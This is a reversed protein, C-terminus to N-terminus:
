EVDFGPCEDPTMWEVRFDVFLYNSGGLHRTLMADDASGAPSTGPNATEYLLVVEEPNDIEDILKGSLAMNMAYSAREGSDDDPCVLMSEDSRYPLIEDVWQAADPFHGDHEDLYEEFAMGIIEMREACAKSRSEARSQELVPRMVAAQLALPGDVLYRLTDMDATYYATVMEKGQADDVRLGMALGLPEDGPYSLDISPAVVSVLSLLQRVSQASVYETVVADVPLRRSVGQYKPASWLSDAERGAARDAAKRAPEPPFGLAMWDDGRVMEVVGEAFMVTRTDGAASVRIPLEFEAAVESVLADFREANTVDAVVLVQPMMSMAAAPDGMDGAMGGMMGGLMSGADPIWTAWGVRPGLSDALGRLIDWVMRLEEDGEEGAMFEEYLERIVLPSQMDAYISRIAATEPVRGLMRDLNLESYTSVDSPVLSAIPHDLAFAPSVFMGIAAMLAVCFGFRFARM